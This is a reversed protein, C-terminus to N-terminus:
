YINGDKDKIYCLRQGCDDIAKIGYIVDTKFKPKLVKLAKLRREEISNVLSKPYKPEHAANYGAHFGNCYALDIRANDKKTM